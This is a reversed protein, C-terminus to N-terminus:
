ILGVSIGGDIPITTGTISGALDSALFAVISGLEEPRSLRKLPLNNVYEKEVAEISKKEEVAKKQFLQKARDTKFNSPCITNITINDKILDKSISKSLSLLGSRFVNSLILQPAPEKVTLSSINIIRGWRNERMSPIILKYLEIAYYLVSTYAENWDQENLDFFNGPKPGGSNVVLIDIRGFHLITEAVANSIEDINTLDCKIPIVDVEFSNRIENATAELEIMNRSCIALSVGVKALELACARGLGKSAGGIFAIRGDKIEM